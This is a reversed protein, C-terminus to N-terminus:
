PHPAPGPAGDRGGEALLLGRDILKSLITGIPNGRDDGKELAVLGLDRAAPVDSLMILEGAAVALVRDITEAVVSASLVFCLLAFHLIAFARPRRAALTRILMRLEENGCKANQMKCKANQM